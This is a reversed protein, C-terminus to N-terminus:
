ALLSLSLFIMFHRLVCGYVWSSTDRPQMTVSGAFLCARSLGTTDKKAEYHSVKKPKGGVFVRVCVCGACVYLSKNRSLQLFPWFTESWRKPTHKLTDERNEVEVEGEQLMDVTFLLTLLHVSHHAGVTKWSM